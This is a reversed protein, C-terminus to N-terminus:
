LGGYLTILDSSQLPFRHNILNVGSITALAIITESNINSVEIDLITNSSLPPISSTNFVGSHNNWSQQIPGYKFYLGNISSYYLDGTSAYKIKLINPESYNVFNSNGSIVEVGSPTGIALVDGLGTISNILNSHIQPYQKFYSLCTTLDSTSEVVEPLNCKLIGSGSTSLYFYTKNDPFYFDTLTGTFTIFNIEQNTNKSLFIIGSPSLLVFLDGIESAKFYSGSSSIINPM